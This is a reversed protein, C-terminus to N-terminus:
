AVEALRSRLRLSIEDPEVEYAMAYIHAAAELTTLTGLDIISVHGVVSRATEILRQELAQYEEYRRVPHEGLDETRPTKGLKRFEEIRKEVRRLTEDLSLTFFVYGTKITPRDIRQYHENRQSIWEALLKIQEPGRGYGDLGFLGSHVQRFLPGLKWIMADAVVPDPVNVKKEVKYEHIIKGAEPKKKSYEGLIDSMAM